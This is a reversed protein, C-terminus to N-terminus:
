AILSPELQHGAKAPLARRGNRTKGEPGVDATLGHCLVKTQHFPRTQDPAAPSSALGDPSQLLLAKLVSSTIQFRNGGAPVVSEVPQTPEHFGIWM